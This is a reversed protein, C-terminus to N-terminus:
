EQGALLVASVPALEVQGDQNATSWLTLASITDARVRGVLVVSGQQRARFASQDLFRRIVRADQDEADLDRYVAVAPVDAEDAARLGGNLGSSLTVFGRGDQALRAMAVAALEPNRQLGAQGLDLLGIAESLAAFGAELNVEADVVQAGAPVEALAIVEIGAARYGAMAEAAGEAAPDLAITVQFGLEALAADSGALSGDDILIVSMLPKGGSLEVSSAFEALAGSGSVEAATEEVAAVEDTEDEDPIIRVAGEGPLTADDGQLAIRPGDEDTEPTTPLTGDVEPTVLVPATSIGDDTTVDLAAVEEEEVPLDDVEALEPDATSESQDALLDDVDEVVQEPASTEVTEVPDTQLTAVEVDDALAENDEVGSDGVEVDPAEVLPTEEEAVEAEPEPPEPTTPDLELAAEGAPAEPLGSQSGSLAPDDTGGVTTGQDGVVPTELSTTVEGGDPQDTSDTDASVVAAGDEGVEVGPTDSPAPAGGADSTVGPVVGDVDSTDAGGAIEPVELQPREPPDNGAPQEAVLSATTLGLGSVIVGWVSGALYGRFM